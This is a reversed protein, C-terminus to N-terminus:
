NYGALFKEASSMKQFEREGREKRKQALFDSVPQYVSAGVTAPSLPAVTGMAGALRNAPTEKPDLAQQASLGRLLLGGAKKVVPNQTVKKVLPNQLPNGVKFENLQYAEKCFQKFTKM